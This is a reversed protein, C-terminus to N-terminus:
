LEHTSEAACIATLTTSLGMVGTILVIGLRYLFNKTM